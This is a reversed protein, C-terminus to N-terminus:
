KPNVIRYHWYRLGSQRFGELQRGDQSYVLTIAGAEATNLWQVGLERYRQLIKAHPHGFPSHFGAPILVTDPLVTQLFSYTSSTKSGHHPAILVDARLQERYTKLLWIEAEDEIDGTLLVSGYRSTIKV